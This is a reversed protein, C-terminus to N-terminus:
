WRWSWRCGRRRSSSGGCFFLKGLPGPHLSLFAVRLFGVGAATKGPRVDPSAGRLAQPLPAGHLRHVECAARYKSRWHSRRRKEVHMHTPESSERVGARVRAVDEKGQFAEDVRRHHLRPLLAAHCRRSDCGGRTSCRESSSNKTRAEHKTQSIDDRATRSERRQQM